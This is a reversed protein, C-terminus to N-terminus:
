PTATAEPQMEVAEETAEAEADSGTDLVSWTMGSEDFVFTRGYISTL